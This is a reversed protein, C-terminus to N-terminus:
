EHEPLEKTIRESFTIRKKQTYQKTRTQVNYLRWIENKIIKDDFKTKQEYLSRIIGRIDEYAKM